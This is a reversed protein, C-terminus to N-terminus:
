KLARNIILGELRIYDDKRDRDMKDLRVNIEKIPKSLEEQIQDRSRRSLYSFFSDTFKWFGTTAGATYILNDIHNTLFDM